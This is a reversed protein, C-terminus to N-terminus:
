CHIHLSNCVQIDMLIASFKEEKCMDVAVQGNEAHKFPIEWRNLYRSMIKTNILNDEVLLINDTCYEEDEVNSRSLSMSPNSMLRRSGGYALPTTIAIVEDRPTVPLRMDFSFTTGKGLTSAVQIEGDMLEVIAKTISLGLGTGGYKRYTDSEAQIFPLFLGSIKSQAIGIGQDSISVNIVADKKSKKKLSVKVKVTSGVPSFKVANTIINMFVQRIRLSDGLLHSPLSPDVEESITVKKEIALVSCMNVVASINEALNIDLEELTMLGSEIKHLDLVSNVLDLIMEGCSAINRIYEKEAIQSDPTEEDLFDTMSLIGCLPTRIEHSVSSLFQTKLHSQFELHRNENYLSKITAFREGLLVNFLSVLITFLAIFCLLLIAPISAGPDEYFMFCRYTRDAMPFDFMMKTGSEAIDDYESDQFGNRQYLFDPDEESTVDFLYLEYFPDILTSGLIVDMAQQFRFVASVFSQTGNIPWMLYLGYQPTGDESTGLTLRSTASPEGSAFLDEVFELGSSASAFDYLIARASDALPFINLIPYYETANGREVLGEATVETFHDYVANCAGAEVEERDEHLVHAVYIVTYLTGVDEDLLPTLFYEYEECSFDPHMELYRAVLELNTVGALGSELASQTATSGTYAYSKDDSTELNVVIIYCATGIAIGIVLILISLPLSKSHLIKSEKVRDLLRRSPQTSTSSEVGIVEEDMSM